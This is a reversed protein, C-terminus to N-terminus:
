SFVPREEAHGQARPLPPAPEQGSCSLTLVPTPLSPHWMCLLPSSEPPLPAPVPIPIEGLFLCVGQGQRSAVPGAGRRDEGGARPGHPSPICFAAEAVLEVHEPPPVSSM